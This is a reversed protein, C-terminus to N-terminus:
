KCGCGEDGSDCGCGDDGCGCDDGCGGGSCGCGCEHHPHGHELEEETADRVETIKVDFHLTEGALPHNGDVTVTEGEIGVITFIQMGGENSAEFQMGPELNETGEFASKPFQMILEDDRDGYAEKPDIVAKVADGAKKGELQKELGPIINGSGHLYQLAEQGESSDIVEGDSGKLTYDISVVKNKEIVM